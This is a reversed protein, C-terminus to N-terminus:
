EGVKGFTRTMQSAEGFGGFGGMMLDVDDVYRNIRTAWQNVLVLGTFSSLTFALAAQRQLRTSVSFHQILFQSIVVKSQCDSLLTVVKKEPSFLTVVQHSLMYRLFYVDLLFSYVSCKNECHSYAVMLLLITNGYELLVM